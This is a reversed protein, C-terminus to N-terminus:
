GGGLNRSRLQYSSHAGVAGRLEHWGIRWHREFDCWSEIQLADVSPNEGGAAGSSRGHNRSACSGLAIGAAIVPREGSAVGDGALRKPGVIRMARTGQWRQAVHGM